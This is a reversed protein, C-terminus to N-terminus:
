WLTKNGSLIYYQIYIEKQLIIILFRFIFAFHETYLVFLKIHM